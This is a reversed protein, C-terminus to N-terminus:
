LDELLISIHPNGSQHHPISIYDNPQPEVIARVTFGDECVLMHDQAALIVVFVHELEGLVVIQM